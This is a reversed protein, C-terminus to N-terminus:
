RAASPALRDPAGHSALTADVSVRGAGTTWFVLYLYCFLISAEMGAGSFSAWFGRPAWTMFYAVAMQGALLFAVPRTFLGLAIAAGGFIELAGAVGRLTNLNIAGNGGGLGFWKELGHLMFLGGAAIRLLAYAQAAWPAPPEADASGLKRDLGISGGGAGALYLFFFASLLVPDGGNRHPFPGAALPVAFYLGLYLPALIGAVPRVFIGLMLLIGGVFSAAEVLGQYSLLAAPSAEPFALVQEMGHRFILFGYITRAASLVSPAVAGLMRDM